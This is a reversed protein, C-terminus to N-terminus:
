PKILYFVEQRGDIWDWTGGPMIAADEELAFRVAQGGWEPVPVKVNGEIAYGTSPHLPWDGQVPTPGQNDWMGITPGPAHGFFGLPHTYVTGLIGAAEAKGRAAALIEADAARSDKETLTALAHITNNGGMFGGFNTEMGWIALLPTRDVGVLGEQLPVLQMRARASAPTKRAEIVARRESPPLALGHPQRRDPAADGHRQEDVAEARGESRAELRQREARAPVLAADAAAM